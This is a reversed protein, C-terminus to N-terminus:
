KYTASLEIPQGHPTHESAYRWAEKRALLEEISLLNKKATLKELAALWCLYYAENGVGKGRRTAAAIEAGLHEAWESWQFLGAENLKVTLAFAQAQWPEDFVPGEIDRPIGTALLDPDLSPVSEAM